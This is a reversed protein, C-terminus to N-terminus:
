QKSIWDLIYDADEKWTPQGLVFHNRGPFERYDTVSGNDKKYKKYNKHNLSAPLINDRSGSTILLPPHEKKFDITSAKTLASRFVMKSEPITYLQYSAEQDERSMDNTFAYQWDKLSMMYNEKRNSFYGLPKRVSKLFSRRFSVVGKPPAPHIAIGAVGLDRQLLLQTILGGLSHGILIPKEDLERITDAYHNVLDTLTLEALGENPINRLTEPSQEKHPWPPVIVNYGKSEFYDKWQDWCSHHVFAGTIFIVTKTQNAKPTNSGPSPQSFCPIGALVILVPLLIFKTINNM